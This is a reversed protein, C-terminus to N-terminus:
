EALSGKAKFGRKKIYLKCPFFIWVVSTGAKLELHDYLILLLM